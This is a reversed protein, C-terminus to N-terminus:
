RPPAPSDYTVRYLLRRISFQWVNRAFPRLRTHGKFAALHIQFQSISVDASLEFGIEEAGGGTVQSQADGVLEHLYILRKRDMNLGCSLWAARAEAEESTALYVLLAPAKHRSTHTPQGDLEIGLTGLCFDLHSMFILMLLRSHFANSVSFLRFYHINFFLLV